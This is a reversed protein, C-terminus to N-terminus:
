APMPYIPETVKMKEPWVSYFTLGQTQWPINPKAPLIQAMALTELANIRHGDPGFRIRGFWPIFLDTEAIANRIAEPDLSKAREIADKLIYLYLLGELALNDVPKGVSQWYKLGLKQAENYSPYNREPWYMSQVFWGKIYKGALEVFDIIGTGAEVVVAKPTYGIEYMQKAMLVADTIYAVFLLVDPDAVKLKELLPKFDLSGVPYGEESVVTFGYQKALTLFANMTSEGRLTKEYVVGITKPKIVEKVFDMTFKTFESASQTTRFFYKYGKQTLEDAAGTGIFPIEYRETVEQMTFVAASM